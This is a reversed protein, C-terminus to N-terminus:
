LHPRLIGRRGNLRWMAFASDATDPMGYEQLSIAYKFQM